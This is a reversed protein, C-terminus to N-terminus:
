GLKEAIHRLLIADHSAGYGDSLVQAGSRIALYFAELERAFASIGRFEIRSTKLRGQEDEGTHTLAALEDKRYPPPFDIRLSGRDGFIEVWEQYQPFEGVWNWSISWDPGGEIRGILQLRPPEARESGPKDQHAYIIEAKAGPFLGRLVATQHCVSGHLVNRFLVPDIAARDGIAGMVAEMNAKRAADILEAPVDDFRSIPLDDTQKSDSPHLVTMRVLRVPGIADMLHRAEAIAPEYMKMYGVQLVLGKKSAFQTDREAQVPDYSYPKEAFVHKGQDLAAKALDAHAGPTCILVAEVLPDALLKEFDTTHPVGLRGGIHAALGRSLDCVHAIRFRDKLHSLMNPLHQSQAILGLGIVGVSVPEANIKM